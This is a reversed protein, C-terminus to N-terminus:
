RPCSLLRRCAFTTRDEALESIMDRTKPIKEPHKQLWSLYGLERGVATASARILPDSRMKLREVAAAVQSVLADDRGAWNVRTKCDPVKPRSEPQHGKLWERDHRYLWAYIGALARRLETRSADPNDKQHGLWTMRYTMHVDKFPAPLEKAKKPKAWRSLNLRTTHNNVTGPDVKLTRAAELLSVGPM